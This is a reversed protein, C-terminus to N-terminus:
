AENIPQPHGAQRVTLRGRGGDPALCRRFQRRHWRRLRFSGPATQVACVAVAAAGGILATVVGDPLLIPAVRKNGAVRSAGGHGANIADLGFLTGLKTSQGRRDADRAPGSRAMVRTKIVPGVKSLPAAKLAPGTKIEPSLRVGITDQIKRPM